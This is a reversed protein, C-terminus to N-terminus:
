LGKPHFLRWGAHFDRERVGHVLHFDFDLGLARLPELQGSEVGARELLFGIAQHYPYVYGLQKLTAVLVPIRVRDRAGEYADLLLGVGGAYAPRVVIDILTRELSTVPLMGGDFPEPLQVVELRGTHKGNLLLVRYDGLAFEYSSARQRRAFALDLGEQTLGGAPAPKRSQERNVYIVKPLDDTLGHLFVATGHSLYAGKWLSAALRHESVQGWVYRSFPPHGDAQFTVKRLSGRSQLFERWESVTTARALDWDVKSAHFFRELERATFVGPTRNFAAFMTPATNQLKTAM